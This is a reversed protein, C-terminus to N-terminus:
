SQTILCMKDHSYHFRVQIIAISYGEIQLIKEQNESFVIPGFHNLTGDFQRNIEQIHQNARILFTHPSKAM